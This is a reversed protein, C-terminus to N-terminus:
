GGRMHSSVAREAERLADKRRLTERKDFLKKGKCIAVNIKVLGHKFFMKLPIVPLRERDLAVLIKRIESRHLLLKRPRTANHEVDNCFKYEAINANYLFLEGGRTGKVFSDTIQAHGGRISKVEAGLLVVGAEFTEGIFYEHSARKNRIECIARDRKAKAVVRGCQMSDIKVVTRRAPM